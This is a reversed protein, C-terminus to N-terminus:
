QGTRKKFKDGIYLSLINMKYCTYLYITLVVTGGIFAEMLYEVYQNYNITVLSFGFKFLVAFILAIVSAVSLLISNRLLKGYSYTSYKGIVIMNIAISVSFGAMTSYAAGSAASLNLLPVILILKVILGFILSMISFYMKNIGQLIASTILYLSFFLAILAYAKTIEGGYEAHATGLLVGYMPKSFLFIFLSSPITVFLITQFAKTIKSHLNNIDNSFYTKTIAPVLTLAFANAVVVPITTIKQVLAVISNIFEAEKQTMGQAILTPNISFIDINQYIPITLGVVVFPISYYIVEKYISFLSVSTKGEEHKWLKKFEFKYKRWYGYLVAGSVLAGITAAFTSLGVALKADQNGVTMVLTAAVLIIGIRVFQEALQSIATPQMKQYGQFFGRIVAMPPVIILAFSIMKIVFEVDKTKNGSGLSDDLLFNAIYPSSLYLLIAWFTGMITMVVVGSKLLKIGVNYDGIENYKSVYKSIAMPIGLMSLSLLIVYPKYAYEFLIFGQTGVLATFPIVYLFGLMKSLFMTVTLLVTGKLFSSKGM